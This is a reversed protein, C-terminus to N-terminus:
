FKYMAGLLLDTTTYNGTITDSDGFPGSEVEGFDQYRGEVRWLWNKKWEYNFGLMAAWTLANVRTDQTSKTFAVTDLERRVSQSWHRAIGLGAGVYPRFKRWSYKFDHFMNIMGGFTAVENTYGQLNGGATGRYDLDFRYRIFFESETRVPFGFKKWDYGISVSNGGVWDKGRRETLGTINTTEADGIISYGGQLNLTAYLGDFLSTPSAAVSGSATPQAAKVPAATTSSNTVPRVPQPQRPANVAPYASPNVFPHGQNLFQNMDYLQAAQVPEISVISLAAIVAVGVPYKFKM